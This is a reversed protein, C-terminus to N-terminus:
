KNYKAQLRELEAREAAERERQMKDRKAARYSAGMASVPITIVHEAPIILIDTLAMEGELANEEEHGDPWVTKEIAADVSDAEIWDFRMGCGITYDCGEGSQKKCILFRM